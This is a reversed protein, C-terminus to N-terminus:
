VPKVLMYIRLIYYITRHCLDLLRNSFIVAHPKIQEPKYWSTLDIWLCRRKLKWHFLHKINMHKSLYISIGKLNLAPSSWTTFQNTNVEILIVFLCRSLTLTFLSLGSCNGFYWHQRRGGESHSILYYSEDSLGARLKPGREGAARWVCYVSWLQFVATDSFKLPHVSLCRIYYVQVLKLPLYQGRLVRWKLLM